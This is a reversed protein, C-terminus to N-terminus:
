FEEGQGFVWIFKEHPYKVRVLKQRSAGGFKQSPSAYNYTFIIISRGIALSARKSPVIRACSPSEPHIHRPAL